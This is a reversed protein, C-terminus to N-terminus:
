GLAMASRRLHNGRMQRLRVLDNRPSYGDVEIERHADDSWFGYKGDVLDWTWTVESTGDYHHGLPELPIVKTVDETIAYILYAGDTDSSLGAVSSIESKDIQVFDAPMDTISSMSGLVDSTFPVATLGGNGDDAVYYYKFGNSLYHSLDLLSGERGDSYLGTSYFEGNFVQAVMMHNDTSTVYDWGGEDSYCQHTEEDYWVDAYGGELCTPAVGPYRTLTYHPLVYDYYERQFSGDTFDGAGRFRIYGDNVYNPSQIKVPDSNMYVRFANEEYGCDICIRKVGALGANNVTHSVSVGRYDTFTFTQEDGFNWTSEFRYNHILVTAGTFSKEFTHGRYEYSVYRGDCQGDIRETDLTVSTGNYGYDTPVGSIGGNKIDELAQPDMNYPEGLATNYTEDTITMRVTATGPSNPNWTWVDTFTGGNLTELTDIQEGTLTWERVTHDCGDCRYLYHLGGDSQTYFHKYYSHNHSRVDAWEESVSFPAYGRACTRRLTDMDFTDYLKYLGGKLEYYNTLNNGTQINGNGNPLYYTGGTVNVFGNVGLPLHYEGGSLTIDGDLPSTRGVIGGSLYFVGDTITLGGSIDINNFGTLVGNHIVIDGGTSINKNEANEDCSLTKENLNLSKSTSFGGDLTIDCDLVVDTIFPVTLIMRFDDANNVTYSTGQPVEIQIAERPDAISYSTTDDADDQSYGAIYGGSRVIFPVGASGWSPKGSVIKLGGDELENAFFVDPLSTWLNETLYFKVSSIGWIGYTYSDSAKRITVSRAANGEM